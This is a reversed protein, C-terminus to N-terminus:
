DLSAGRIVDTLLANRASAWKHRLWSGLESVDPEVTPVPTDPLFDPFAVSIRLSPPRPAPRLGLDVELERGLDKIEADLAVDWLHSNTQLREVKRGLKSRLQRTGSRIRLAEEIVREPHGKSVREFHRHLSPVAFERRAGEERLLLALKDSLMGIREAVTRNREEILKGRGVSPAYTAEIMTALQSNLHFRLFNEVQPAVDSEPYRALVERVSERLNPSHAIMFGVAGAARMERAQEKVENWYADGESSSVARILSLQREVHSSDLSRPYDRGYPGPLPVFREKLEAICTHAVKECITFYDDVKTNLIKLTRHSLGLSELMDIGRETGERVPNSEFSTLALRDCFALITAFHFLGPASEATVKSSALVSCAAQFGTNDLWVRM